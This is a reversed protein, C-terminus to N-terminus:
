ECEKRSTAQRGCERWLASAEVQEVRCARDSNRDDNGATFRFPVLGLVMITLLSILVVIVVGITWGVCCSVHCGVDKKKKSM